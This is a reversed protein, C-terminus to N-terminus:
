RGQTSLQPCIVLWGGVEDQGHPKHIVGQLHIYVPSHTQSDVFDKTHLLINMSISLKVNRTSGLEQNSSINYLFILDKM